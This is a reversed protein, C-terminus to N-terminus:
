QVSTDPRCEYARVKEAIFEPLRAIKKGKQFVVQQYGSSVLVGGVYFRFRLYFSCARINFTNVECEVTQMPFTEHVYDQHAQKTVFAGDLHLLDDSICHHFWHERCVGQWEFYRAFYVNTYANSDKLYVMFSHRFTRREPAIRVPTEPAKYLRTSTETETVLDLDLAM